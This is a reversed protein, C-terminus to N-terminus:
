IVKTAIFADFGKAKLKNVVEVASAKVKFSGAIVRLYTKGDKEFAELFADFGQSKLTNMCKEAEARVLFSGAVARFYTTGTEGTTTNTTPLNITKNLIGEAIAKAFKKPDYLKMDDKDDIFCCEVLMANANTHKLVYLNKGDKVGRNKLGLKALNDSVRKAHVYVKSKSGNFVYVETGTTKGDGKEDNVCANFHISIFYDLGQANAKQVRLRLSDNNSPAKDVTCNITSHGENKFIATLEKGVERTLVEERKGCGSSGTNAGSLCHGEDIGIRM